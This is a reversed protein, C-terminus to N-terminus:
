AKGRKKHELGYDDCIPWRLMGWAVHPKGQDQLKRVSEETYKRGTLCRGCAICKPKNPDRSM